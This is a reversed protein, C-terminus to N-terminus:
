HVLLYKRICLHGFLVCYRNWTPIVISFNMCFRVDSKTANEMSSDYVNSSDNHGDFPDCIKKIFKSKNM